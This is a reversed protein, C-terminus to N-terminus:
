GKTSAVLCGGKSSNYINARNAKSHQELAECIFLIGDSLSKFLNQKHDDILEICMYRLDQDFETPTPYALVLM